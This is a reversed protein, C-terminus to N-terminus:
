FTVERRSLSGESSSLDLCRHRRAPHAFALRRCRAWSNGLPGAPRCSERLSSSDAPDVDLLGAGVLGQRGGALLPSSRNMGENM